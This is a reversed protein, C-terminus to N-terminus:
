CSSKRCLACDCILHISHDHIYYKETIKKMNPKVESSTSHIYIALDRIIFHYLHLYCLSQSLNVFLIFHDSCKTDRSSLTGILVQCYDWISSKRISKLLNNPSSSVSRFSAFSLLCTRFSNLIRRSKSTPFSLTSPPSSSPPSTFQSLSYTGFFSLKNSPNFQYLLCLLGM